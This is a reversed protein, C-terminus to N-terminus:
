VIHTFEQICKLNLVDNVGRVGDRLEFCAQQCVTSQIHLHDRQQILDFPPLQLVNRVKDPEPHTM